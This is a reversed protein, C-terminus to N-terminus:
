FCDTETLFFGGFVFYFFEGVGDEFGLVVVEVFVLVVINVRGVGKLIYSFFFCFLLGEGRM